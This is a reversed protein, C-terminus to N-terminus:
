RYLVMNKHSMVANLGALCNVTVTVSLLRVKGPVDEHVAHGCGSLVQMQFKGVITAYVLCPLPDVCLPRTCVQVYKM